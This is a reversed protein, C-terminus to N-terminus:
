GPWLLLYLGREIGLTIIQLRSFQIFLEAGLGNIDRQRPTTQFVAAQVRHGAGNLTNLSQKALQAKSDRGSRFDFIIKAFKSAKFM